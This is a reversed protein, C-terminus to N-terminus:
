VADFSRWEGKWPALSGESMMDMSRNSACGILAGFIVLAAICVSICKINQKTM